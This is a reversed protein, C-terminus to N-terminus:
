SAEAHIQNETLEVLADFNYQNVQQMLSERLRVHSPPVQMILQMLWERDAQIAAQRLEQMWDFSMMHFPPSQGERAEIAIQRHTQYCYEVGLHEAMVGFIDQEKFPKRVFDDCGTAMIKAREEEFASATLAIIKTSNRIGYPEARGAPYESNKYKEELARIQRTAEYGDMVPMNMDMWILHPQWDQYRAIAAVGHDVSYVQFGVSTLLEELLQRAAPHDDVVLIRYPPEHPALGVVQHTARVVQYPKALQMPLDIQFRAGGTGSEHVEIHGGMLQVYEQCIALGLGTGEQAQQGADAQIFAEFLHKRAEPLIGPGSDEVEFRLWCPFTQVSIDASELPPVSPLPSIRLTVGGQQTFKIANGLLNVLIQQLKSADAKLYQPLQPSRLVNLSLKKADAKMQFLDELTQLLQYLDFPTEMLTVHGAEIKSIALVDNILNLLHEGSRSIIDLHTQQSPLAQSNRQMLQTFGLIANLPTRLEHSMNAIFRSKTQNAAEAREKAAELQQNAAALEATREDVKQELLSFSGQLSAAMRSFSTALEAVEQIGGVAIAPNHWRGQSLDKAAQNLQAIPQAIWRATLIGIGSALLLAGACLLLTNRTNANVQAVFDSEPMVTILLWDLGVSEKLPTTQLFYRDGNVRFMLEQDIVVNSLQGFRTELFQSSANLLPLEETKLPLREATTGDSSTQYPVQEASTAVLKGTKPEVLFVKGGSGLDLQHLFQNIDLLGLSVGLVGQLAGQAYIPQVTDISMNVLPVWVFIETWTSKRQAVALQYWPRDRPDYPAVHLQEALQNQRNTSYIELNGDRTMGLAYTGDPRREAGMYEGSENSWYVATLGEFAQIQELFYGNLQDPTDLPLMGQAIAAANIRNVETAQKVHDALESEIRGSVETMLRYALDCIAQQGNRWSLYG